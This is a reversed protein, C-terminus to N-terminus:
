VSKPPATAPVGFIPGTQQPNGVVPAPRTPEQAVPDPGHKVEEFPVFPPLEKQPGVGYSGPYDTGDSHQTWNDYRETGSGDAMKKVDGQVSPKIVAASANKPLGDLQLVLARAHESKNPMIIGNTEFIYILHDVTM